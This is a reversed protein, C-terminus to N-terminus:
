VAMQHVAPSTGVVAADTEDETRRELTRVSPVALMVLASGAIVVAGLALTARVGILMALPGAVIYGIPQFILSGLWDYASVRSISDRPVRAQLTTTWLTNAVNLAAAGFLAGLGVIILPFPKSLLLLPLAYLGIVLYGARLPRHPEFRLAIANGAVYGAAILTMVIGWDRAGGFSHKAVVPGLVFFPAFALNWIAFYVISSWVWTRATVERWGRALEHLFPDRPPRLRVPLRLRALFLASLAFTAADIAFVWGSGVLVVLLGGVAPGIIGIVSRSLAMLANAQQLRDLAVTDPVLGTAAPNFFANATGYVAALAMLQWLQATGTLLIAAAVAQAGGRVLDSVLMVKQRPLRDAWVGGVLMFALNPLLSATLVLGLDTASGLNLVAFILAILVLKDGVASIAQGTWLLRFQREHLV